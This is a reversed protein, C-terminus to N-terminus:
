PAAALASTSCACRCRCGSMSLLFGAPGQAAPVQLWVMTSGALIAICLSVSRRGLKTPAHAFPREALVDSGAALAEGAVLRRGAEATQEVALQRGASSVLGALDQAPPAGAAEVEAPAAHGNAASASASTAASKGGEAAAEGAALVVAELEAVLAAAEATDGAQEELLQLAHRADALAAASSGSRGLARAIGARRYWAKPFSPDCAIAASADGLAEELRPPQLKSLCLARNAYLRAALSAGAQCAEDCYRLAESYLRAAQRHQGRGFAAAGRQKCSAVHEDDAM